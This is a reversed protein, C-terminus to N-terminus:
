WIAIEVDCRRLRAFGKKTYSLTYQYKETEVHLFDFCRSEKMYKRCVADQKESLWVQIKGADFRSDFSKLFVDTFWKM